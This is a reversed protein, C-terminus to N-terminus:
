RETSTMSELASDSLMSRWIIVSEIVLILTGIIASIVCWQCIANIVWIEVYTLYAAYLTGAFAITWSAVTAQEFTFPGVGLWRVLALAGLALYMGVGLVAIPVPGLTAYASDQVTGCQGVACVLADRDFHTYTLYAAVLAGVVSLLVISALLYSPSADPRADKHNTMSNSKM